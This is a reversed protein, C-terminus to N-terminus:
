RKRGHRRACRCDEVGHTVADHALLVTDSECPKGAHVDQVAIQRERQQILVLERRDPARGTQM